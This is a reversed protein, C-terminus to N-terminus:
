VLSVRRDGRLRLEFWVRTGGENSVGWRDSLSQVMFLGRGSVEDPEPFRPQPVSASGPDTVEVRVVDVGIECHVEVWSDPDLGAHLVSNTVLESVLLRLDDFRARDLRHRVGDLSRRAVRAADVTRPLRLDIKVADSRYMTDM